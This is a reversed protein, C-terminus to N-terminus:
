NRVKCISRKCATTEWINLIKLVPVPLSESSLALGGNIGALLQNDVRSVMSELWKLDNVIGRMESERLHLEALGWVVLQSVLHAM